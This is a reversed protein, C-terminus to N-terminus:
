RTGHDRGRLSCCGARRRDGGRSPGTSYPSSRIWRRARGHRPLDREVLKKGFGRLGRMMTSRAHGVPDVCGRRGRSSRRRGRAHRQPQAPQREDRPQGRRQESQGGDLGVHEAAPGVDGRGKEQRLRHRENGHHEHERTRAQERQQRAQVPVLRDGRTEDDEDGRQHEQLVQDPPIQAQVPQEEGIVQLPDRGRERAPGGRDGGGAEEEDTERQQQRHVLPVQLVAPGMNRREDRGTAERQERDDAM